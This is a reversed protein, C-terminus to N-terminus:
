RWWGGAMQPGTGRGRGAAAPCSCCTDICENSLEAECQPGVGAQVHDWLQVIPLEAQDRSYQELVIRRSVWDVWPRHDVM